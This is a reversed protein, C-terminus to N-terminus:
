VQYIGLGQMTYSLYTNSEDEASIIGPSPVPGQPASSDQGGGANQKITPLTITESGGKSPKELNKKAISPTSIPITTKIDKQPTTSTEQVGSILSALKTNAAAFSANNSDQEKLSSLMTNVISGGNFNIDDILPGFQKSQKLNVVKEGPTGLIPTIDKNIKPGPITGGKEMKKFFLDYLKRGAWDGAFGGLLTGVPGGLMTGIAGLLGAGIAGFAARGPDEGLAVSIGFDLLVGVVPIKKLIPRLFKMLGKGLFKTGAKSVSKFLNRGVNKAGVNVTQMAKSLPSKTRKFTSVTRSAGSGHTLPTGGQQLAKGYRSTGGITRTGTRTIKTGHRGSWSQGVSSTGGGTPLRGRPNMLQPQGRFFRSLNRLARFIKQVKNIVKFIVAGSLLAIVYGANDSLFNFIGTVKDLNESKRLWKLVPTVVFGTAVVGLFSLFKSFISKAPAVVKDFQKTITSAFKTAKEVGSEAGAKKDKDSQTRIKKIDNQEKKLRSAFDKTIIGQIEVLTKNVETLSEEQKTRISNLLLDENVQVKTEINQIRSEVHETKKELGIINDFIGVNTETQKTDINLDLPKITPKTVKLTPRSIKSIPAASLKGIPSKINTINLKPKQQTQTNILAM